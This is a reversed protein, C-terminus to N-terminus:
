KVGVNVTAEGRIDASSAGVLLKYIGPELVWGAQGADYYAWEDVPLEIEVRRTEGPKLDVVKKFGKLEKEARLVASESERKVYVQVTESGSVKGTNTVDVSLAVRDGSKYTKKDVEPTGFDFVTYSLGHGFAFLPRINKTDFWRYGVLIGESYCQHGDVGPYSKPGFSVAANDELVVPFSFPLKGSPNVDGSVVSAIANGAESGLYWAQLVAPVRDLWPMAVANGSVLIVVVNDNVKVLEDILRDQGYPLNYEKRDTSEADQHNNKNLGGVFLVVDADAVAKVAEDSLARNETENADPAYGHVYAVQCNSGFRTILGELPTVEYAAKLRSSGGGATQIRTANDGVVVIRKVNGPDLPLVKGENKLLVIGAEAIKRAAESHEETVFSGWPRNRNMSTRFILTLVRRAKDDLAAMSVEGARLAELYPTALYYRDFANAESTTLGDTRTGMEIDLGNEAAQKTDHTGGWDSIVAGDFGWEKKLIENLLIQNHCCHEGRYKNYAGMISWAGGEQVAAKFAPLYIERLARDDVEVDIELRSKEQNNLAFHKVCVAVGNKQVAQVYPVVMRSALYPDEGMYEFNRGNLPLRYINVGPGLLVDKERYRAEEGISKGYLASLDPDFTAALATLAPFATCSDSTWGAEKWSDWSIEERVGHPGDSMMLEPIGLRPVGPSTFKSQAHCLAVKEEMSMRSLADEVREAISKSEDLYIPIESKTGCGVFASMACALVAILWSKSKMKVLKPISRKVNLYEMDYLESPTQERTHLMQKVFVINQSFCPYWVRRRIM